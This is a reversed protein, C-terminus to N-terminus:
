SAFSVDDISDKSMDYQVPDGIYLTVKSPIPIQIFTVLFWVTSSIFLLLPAIVPINLKIFYSFLRGLGFLNWFFLIPNWRMEEVNALFLPVIPVQADTAIRAFGKGIFYYQCSWL